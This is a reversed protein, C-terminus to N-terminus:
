DSGKAVVVPMFITVSYALDRDIKALGTWVSKLSPTDKATRGTEGGGVEATIIM